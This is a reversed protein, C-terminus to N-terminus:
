RSRDRGRRCRAKHARDRGRSPARWPARRPLRPARRRRPAIASGSRRIRPRRLPTAHRGRRRICGAAQAMLRCIKNVLLRRHLQPHLDRGAASVTDMVIVGGTRQSSLSRASLGREVPRSESYGVSQKTPMQMSVDAMASCSASRSGRTSKESQRRQGRGSSSYRCGCASSFRVM